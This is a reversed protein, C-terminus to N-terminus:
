PSPHILSASARRSSCRRLFTAILGALLVALIGMWGQVNSWPNDIQHMVGSLPGASLARPTFERSLYTVAADGVVILTVLLAGISQSHNFRLISSWIALTTLWLTLMAGAALSSASPQEAVIASLILMPWASAIAVAAARGDRLLWPFILSALIMQGALMVHLAMSSGPLPWRASMAVGGSGLGLAAVQGSLWVALACAACTKAQSM